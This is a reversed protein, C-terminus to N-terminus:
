YDDERNVNRPRVYDTIVKSVPIPKLGTSSIRLYIKVIKVKNSDVPDALLTSGSPYDSYYTFPKEGPLNTVNCNLNNVQENATNYVAPAGSPKTVGKKLCTGDIFYRVREVDPASDNNSYVIIENATAKELDFAGNDAQRMERIEKSMENISKQINSVIEAQNFIFNYYKYGMQVMLTIGMIALIFIAMSILTEM